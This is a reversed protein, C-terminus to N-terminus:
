GPHKVPGDATLEIYGIAKTVLSPAPGGCSTAELNPFTNELNESLRQRREREFTVDESRDIQELQDTLELRDILFM